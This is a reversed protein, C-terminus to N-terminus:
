QANTAEICHPTGEIKSELAIYSYSYAHSTNVVFSGADIDRIYSGNQSLPACISTQMYKGYEHNQQSFQSTIKLCMLM